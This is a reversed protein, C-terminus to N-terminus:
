KYNIAFDEIVTNTLLKKSIEEIIKEAKKKDNENLEFHGSMRSGYGGQLGNSGGSAGMIDITYTGSEPVVWEQIGNNLTVQGELETGSYESDCQGQSPGTYGEQSCNTFTVTTEERGYDVITASWELDDGGENSITLTQTSTENTM